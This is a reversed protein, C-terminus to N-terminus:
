FETETYNAKKNKLIDSTFKSWLPLDTLNLKPLNTNSFTVQKKTYNPIHM